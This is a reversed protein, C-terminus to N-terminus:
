QKFVAAESWRGSAKARYEDKVKQESKWQDLLGFGALAQQITIEPLDLTKKLDEENQAKSSNDLIHRVNYAAQLHSASKSHKQLFSNNYAKLDADAAPETFSEKIVQSVQAPLPESTKSVTVPWCLKRSLCSIYQSTQRFRVSQEHL